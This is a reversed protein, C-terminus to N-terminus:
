SVGSAVRMKDEFRDNPAVDVTAGRSRARGPLSSTNMSSATTRIRAPFPPLPQMLKRRSFNM